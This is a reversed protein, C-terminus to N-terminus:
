RCTRTGMCEVAARPGAAAGSGIALYSIGNEYNVAIRTASNHWPCGENVLRVAARAHRLLGVQPSIPSTM